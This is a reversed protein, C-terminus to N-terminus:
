YLFPIIRYNVKKRYTDWLEGYKTRCVKDDDAQRSFLLGVDYLPYLWVMWVLPYGSSLAIGCAM